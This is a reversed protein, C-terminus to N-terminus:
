IQQIASVESKTTSLTVIELNSAEEEREIRENSGEGPIMERVSGKKEELSGEFDLM